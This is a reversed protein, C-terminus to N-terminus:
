ARRGSRLTKRLAPSRAPGNEDTTRSFIVEGKPQQDQRAPQAAPEQASPSSDIIQASGSTVAICIAAAFLTAATSFKM